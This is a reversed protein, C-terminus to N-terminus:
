PAGALYDLREELPVAPSGPRIGVAALALGAVHVAVNLWALAVLAQACANRSMPPVTRTTHEKGGARTRIDFFSGPCLRKSGFWSTTINCFLEVSWSCSDLHIQRIHSSGREMCILGLSPIKEGCRGLM